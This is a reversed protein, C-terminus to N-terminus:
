TVVDETSLVGALEAAAQKLAGLHNGVIDETRVVGDIWLLNICAAVQGETIVPVAIARMDFDLEVPVVWYGPERTGYGQARTEDLLKEVWTRNRAARDERHPSKRLRALIEEREDDLCFALYARGLASWLMHPRIRIVERNVVIPSKRRSTEMIEMTQGNFVALDTPWAVQACLRELIPVAIEAIVHESAINSGFTRTNAGLRYIGDGLSCHVWSQQELTKLIRLLTSKSLKTMLHLEHLTAGSGEDLRRLVTLGRELARISKVKAM